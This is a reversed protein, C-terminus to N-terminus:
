GQREDMLNRKSFDTLHGAVKVGARWLFKIDALNRVSFLKRALFKPILAAKYLDQTLKLVDDSSVPSKWESEKMDYHDWDETLLWGDQRAEEFM